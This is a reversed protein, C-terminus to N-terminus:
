RVSASLSLGATLLAHLATRAKSPVIRFAADWINARKSNLISPSSPFPLPGITPVFRYMTSPCCNPNGAGGSRLTLCGGRFTAYQSISSFNLLTLTFHSDDPTMYQM